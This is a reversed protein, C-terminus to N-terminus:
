DLWVSLSRISTANWVRYRM